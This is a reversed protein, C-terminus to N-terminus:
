KKPKPKKYKRSRVAAFSSYSSYPEFGIKDITKYFADQRVPTNKLQEQFQQEFWTLLDKSM